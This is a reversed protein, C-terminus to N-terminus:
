TFNFFLMQMAVPLRDRDIIEFYFLGSLITIAYLGAILSRAIPQDNKIKITHGKSDKMKYNIPGGIWACYFSQSVKMSYGTETDYIYVTRKGYLGNHVVRSFTMEYRDNVTKTIHRTYFPSPFSFKQKMEKLLSKSKNLMIEMSKITTNSNQVTDDKMPVAKRTKKVSQVKQVPQTSQEEKILPNTSNNPPMYPENLVNEELEPNLMQEDEILDNVTQIDGPEAQTSSIEHNDDLNMAKNAISEDSDLSINHMAPAIENPNVNLEHEHTTKAILESKPELKVQMPAIIKQMPQVPLRKTHPVASQKLNLITPAANNKKKDQNKSTKAKAKQNYKIRKDENISTNKKIKENKKKDKNLTNDIKKNAACFVSPLFLCLRILKNSINMRVLIENIFKITLILNLM